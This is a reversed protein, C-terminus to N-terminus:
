SQELKIGLAEALNLKDVDLFHFLGAQKIKLLADYAHIVLKSTELKADGNQAKNLSIKSKRFIYGFFDPLAILRILSKEVFSMQKIVFHDSPFNFGETEKKGYVNRDFFMLIKKALLQPREDRLYTNLLILYYFVAQFEHKDFNIIDNNLYRLIKTPEFLLAKRYKCCFCPLRNQIIIETLDAIVKERPRKESFIETAHFVSAKVRHRNLVQDFQETTSSAKKKPVAVGFYYIADEVDGNKTDFKTEDCFIITEVDNFVQGM